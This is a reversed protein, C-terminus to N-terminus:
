PAFDPPRLRTTLKAVCCREGTGRTAQPVAGGEGATGSFTDLTITAINTARWTKREDGGGGERPYVEAPVWSNLRRGM